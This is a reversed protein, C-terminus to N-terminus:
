EKIEKSIENEGEWIEQVINKLGEKKVENISDVIVSSILIIFVITFLISAISM